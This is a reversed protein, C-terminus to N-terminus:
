SCGMSGARDGATRRSGASAPGPRAPLLVPSPSVRTRTPFTLRHVLGGPLSYEVFGRAAQHWRGYILVSTPNAPAAATVHEVASQTSHSGPAWRCAALTKGAVVVQGSLEHRPYHPFRRSFQRGFRVDTGCVGCAKVEVLVEGPGPQPTEVEKVRLENIREVVAAKM